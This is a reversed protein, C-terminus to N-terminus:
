AFHEKQYLQAMKVTMMNHYINSCVLLNSNRNINKIGNIHHVIEDNKLKRELIREVIVRHEYARKKRYGAYVRVYGDSDIIKEGAYRPNLPGNINKSRFLHYCQQSCFHKNSKGATIDKNCERCKRRISRSLNYCDRSCFKQFSKRDLHYRSVFEGNCFQCKRNEVTM